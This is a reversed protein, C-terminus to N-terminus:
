LTIAETAPRAVEAEKANVLVWPEGAVIVVVLPVGCFAWIL